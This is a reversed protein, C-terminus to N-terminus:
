DILVPQESDDPPLQMKFADPDDQFAKMDEKCQKHDPICHLCEGCWPCFRHYKKWEDFECDESNCPILGGGGDCSVFCGCKLQVYTRSM